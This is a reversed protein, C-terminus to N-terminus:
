QLKEGCVLSVAFKESASDKELFGDTPRRKLGPVPRRM